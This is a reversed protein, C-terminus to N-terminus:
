ACGQLKRLLMLSLKLKRLRSFIASSHLKHLMRLGPKLLKLKSVVRFMACGYVETQRVSRVLPKFGENQVWMNIFRFSKWPRRM